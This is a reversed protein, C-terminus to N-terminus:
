LHKGPGPLAFSFAFDQTVGTARDELTFSLRLIAPRQAIEDRATVGDSLAETTMGDLRVGWACFDLAGAGDAHKVVPSGAGDNGALVVEMTCATVREHMPALRRDLDSWDGLNMGPRETFSWRNDDLLTPDDGATYRRPQPSYSTGYKYYGLISYATGTATNVPAPDGSIRRAYSRNTDNRAVLLRHDATGTWTWREWVLDTTGEIFSDGANDKGGLRYGQDDAVATMFLLDITGAGGAGPSRLWFACDQQLASVDRRMSEYIGKASSHLQLRAQTRKVLRQIQAFMTWAAGFLLMALAISVLLEVLTFGGHATGHATKGRHTGM